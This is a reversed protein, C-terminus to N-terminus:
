SSSFVCFRCYRNSIRRLSQLRGYRIPVLIQRCYTCSGNLHVIRSDSKDWRLIRNVVILKTQYSSVFTTSNYFDLLSQSPAYDPSSPNIHLSLMNLGACFNFTEHIFCDQLNKCPQIALSANNTLIQEPNIQTAYFCLHNLTCCYRPHDQKMELNISMVVLFLSEGYKSTVRSMKKTIILERQLSSSLTSNHVVGYGVYSCLIPWYNQITTFFVLTFHQVSLKYIGHSVQLM